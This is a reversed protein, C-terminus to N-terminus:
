FFVGKNVGVMGAALVFAFTLPSSAQMAARFWYNIFSKETGDLNDKESAEEIIPASLLVVGPGPILATLIPILLLIVRNNGAIQFLKVVLRHLVGEEELMIGLIHILNISILLDITTVCSITNWITPLFNAWFGGYVLVLLGGILLAVGFMVGRKNLLIVLAFAVTLVLLPM